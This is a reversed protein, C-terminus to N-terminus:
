LTRFSSNPVASAAPVVKARKKSGSRSHAVMYATSTHGALMRFFRMVSATDFRLSEIEKASLDNYGGADDEWFVRFLEEAM